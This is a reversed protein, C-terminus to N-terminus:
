EMLKPSSTWESRALLRKFGTPHWKGGRATLIQRKNLEAAIALLTIIGKDRIDEIIPLVDAAHRDAKAKIEVVAAVNGKDARRSPPRVM